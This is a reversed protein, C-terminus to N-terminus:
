VRQVIVCEIQDPQARATQYRMSRLRRVIRQGTVEIRHRQMEVLRNVTCVEPDLRRAECAVGIYPHARGRRALRGPALLRVLARLVEETRSPVLQRFNLGGSLLYRLWNTLPERVVVELTPCRQEFLARDREFVIYSLAQNAGHM